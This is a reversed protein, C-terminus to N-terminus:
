GRRVPPRDWAEPRIRYSAELLRRAAPSPRRLGSTWNYVASPSVRCRAAVYVVETRRLVLLLERRGQTFAGPHWRWTGPM